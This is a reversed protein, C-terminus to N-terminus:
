GEKFSLIMEYMGANTKVDFITGIRLRGGDRKFRAGMEPKWIGPLESIRCFFLIDGVSIGEYEVKTREKLQDEDVTGTFSHGNLVLPEGFEEPDLFVSMDAELSEKFNAM